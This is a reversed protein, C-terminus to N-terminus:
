KKNMLTEVAAKLQDIEKQQQELQSKQAEIQKNQAIAYLTLEEIKEQHINAMQGVEIGDEKVQKATPVNPLHGNTNIYQELEPLSRLKYDNAFVYDAWGNNTSLAVRVEETLIGGKVFLKYASVNVSGATTPFNSMGGIGVKSTAFDGFIMPTPTGGNAIYLKDNGTANLGANYGVFVNGSGTASNGAGSGLITNNGGTISYGAQFGILTNGAGNINLAGTGHGVFTNGYGVTNNGGSSSGVFINYAGETNEYGSLYGMFVNATGTTNKRGSVYGYFTNNNASNAVGAGAQDGTFTNGSGTAYGGASRGVYVNNAGIINSYGASTGLFTNSDGLTNSYGASNGVFTNDIAKSINVSYGARYGIYTGAAPYPGTAGGVMYAGNQLGYGTAGTAQVTQANVQMAGMLLLGAVLIKTTKM